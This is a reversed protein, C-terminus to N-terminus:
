PAYAKSTMHITHIQCNSVQQYAELSARLSRQRHELDAVKESLELALEEQARQKDQVVIAVAQPAACTDEHFAKTAGSLISQV